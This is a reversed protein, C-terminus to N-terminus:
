GQIEDDDEDEDETDSVDEGGDTGNGNVDDFLSQVRSEEEDFHPQPSPPPPPFYISSHNVPRNVVVM